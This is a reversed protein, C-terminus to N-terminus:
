TFHSFGSRPLTQELSAFQLNPLSKENFHAIQKMMTEERKENDYTQNLSHTVILSSRQGNEAGVITQNLNFICIKPPSLATCNDTGKGRIVLIGGVAVFILCLVDAM